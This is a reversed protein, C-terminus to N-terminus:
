FAMVASVHELIEYASQAGSKTIDARTITQVPLAGETLVRKINSGTVEVMVDAADAPIAAVALSTGLATTLALATALKRLRFKMTRARGRPPQRFPKLARTRCLEDLSLGTTAESRDLMR